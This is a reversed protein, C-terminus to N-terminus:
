DDESSSASVGGFTIEFRVLAAGLSIEKPTIDICSGSPAGNSTAIYALDYGDFVPAYPNAVPTLPCFINRLTAGGTEPGAYNGAFPLRFVGTFPFRDNGNTTKMTGTVTGYPVGNLLAPSFDMKGSFSANMVVLEPGDAPNDGQVVVTLTGKFDGTGTTTDISDSGTANVACASAGPSYSAVLTAPCLPTGVAAWGTLASSANRHRVGDDLLVSMNETLEYLTADAASATRSGTVLAVTAVALAVFVVLSRQMM